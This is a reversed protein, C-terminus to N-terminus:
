ERALQREADPTLHRGGGLRGPVLQEGHWQGKVGLPDFIRPRLYELLM